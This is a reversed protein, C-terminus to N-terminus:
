AKYRQMVGLRSVRVAKGLRQWSWDSLAPPLALGALLALTVILLNM